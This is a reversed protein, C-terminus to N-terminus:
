SAPQDRRANWRRQVRVLIGGGLAAMAQPLSLLAAIWAIEWLDFVAANKTFIVGEMPKLILRFFGAGSWGNVAPEISKLTRDIADPVALCCALYAILGLSLGTTFGVLFQGSRKRRSAVLYGSMALVSASPIFGLDLAMPYFGFLSRRGQILFWRLWALDAALILLGVMLSNISLRPLRM